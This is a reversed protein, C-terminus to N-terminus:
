SSRQEATEADDGDGHVESDPAGPQDPLFLDGKQGCGTMAALLLTGFLISFLRRSSSIAM